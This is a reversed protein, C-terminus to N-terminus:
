LFIRGPKPNFRPGLAKGPRYRVMQVLWSPLLNCCSPSNISLEFCLSVSQPLDTRRFGVNDHNSRNYKYAHFRGVIALEQTALMRIHAKTTNGDNQSILRTTTQVSTALTNKAHSSIHCQMSTLELIIELHAFLVETQWLLM